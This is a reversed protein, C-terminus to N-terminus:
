GRGSAGRLPRSPREPIGPLVCFWEDRTLAGAALDYADLDATELFAELKEDSDFRPFPKKM